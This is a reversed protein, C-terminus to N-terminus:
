GESADECELLRVGVRGDVDVLEGRGITKGNARVQVHRDLPQHLKFVYGPKIRRLDRLAVEMDGAVFVLRIPLDEAAIATPSESRGPQEPDGARGAPEAEINQGNM